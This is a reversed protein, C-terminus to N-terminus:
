KVPWIREGKLEIRVEAPRGFRVQLASLLDALEPAEINVQDWAKRRQQAVLARAAIAAPNHNRMDGM